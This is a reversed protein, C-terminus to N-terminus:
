FSIETQDLNLSMDYSDYASWLMRAVLMVMGIEIHTVYINELLILVITVCLLNYDEEIHAM